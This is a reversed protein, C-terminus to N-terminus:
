YGNYELDVIRQSDNRTILAYILFSALWHSGMYDSGAVHPISALIHKDGLLRLHDYHEPLVMALSYLCWARSFNLGDLHVLKGDTRDIVKGPVLYFKKKFLGPLFKKLWKEFEQAPLIKGMLEAEQLCPSIFDFGSPEWEIPCNCDNLYYDKAREEITTVFELDNVGRAYDLALSLGFSTNTHEGVRIPYVLKPLFTKYSDVIFDTLPQLNKTWEHEKNFDSKLLEHHLKLIWAWGYTREFSKELKPEFYALEAEVNDRTFQKDFLNIIELAIESDPFKNLLAALLWHGHVSSHWDFCGYFIPHLDKPSELFSSDTLVQNLKNPYETEVCHLPLGAMKKALEYDLTLSDTQAWSTLFVNLFVLKIIVKYM